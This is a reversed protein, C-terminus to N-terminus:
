NEACQVSPKPHTYATFGRKRRITDSLFYTHFTHFTRFEGPRSPTRTWQESTFPAQKPPTAWGVEHARARHQRVDVALVVLRHELREVILELLVGLGAGISGM